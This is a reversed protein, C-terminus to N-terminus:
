PQYNMGLRKYLDLLEQRYLEAPDPLIFRFHGFLELTILGQLKAWAALAAHLLELPYERELRQKWEALQTHLAKTQEATGSIPKLQYQRYVELMLELMIGMTRQATPITDDGPAHYGPIPSGFILAYDVPYALAWERYALLTNWLRRAADESTTGDRAVQLSDALSNYADLILVTLLEDRSSFYRYLAPATMGMQAAIARLSIAAAGQQTMQQRAIAKIEDTTAARLRERRPIVM